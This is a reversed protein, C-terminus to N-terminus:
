PRVVVERADATVPTRTVAGGPWRTWVATPTGSLGFVQVAGNQSWYGSGAQVERVPGMHDEGYVIRVQAGVGDPNAPPGMLRVRLGSKAGRNRFLKTPGANQSVALDLRGDGDFDAYGAGRQDGYVVIGSRSSPVPRLRGTGDGLLLLGRGADYRPMGEPTPSFNQGLFVDEFGDGDFDAVGAYFAPAFQAEVPLPAADFRNGRNLFVLHDMTVVEFRRASGAATGLVQEVTSGAFKAFTPVRAALGPVATRLRPLGDLPVLGELRADQRALLMEPEGRTGPWGYVLLLPRTSDTPTATNRGWSTAVLDLRGDGDLDGTALGNWRSTWRDLGWSASASTFRGGENLLLLVSGWERALLLDEDGDGDVDAFLAASVLGVNRLVASNAEDPVFQGDENRYLASSAPEPYRGPIVRGGVFLDPDGDGDTDGLAMPGTSSEGPPALIEASVPSGRRPAPGSVAAPVAEGDPAEWRSLGALLRAGGDRALGLITTFDALAPTGQPPEPVLRGGTNRFVGLRGGRGTGVVLDEDGDRDLDFWTVGPGLLSLAGPLLLQRSWDDFPTDTHLHGGLEATADEFLRVTVPSSAEPQASATASTIEYLRNPRVGNLVTRKGGPWDIVLTVSDASGTAFSTLYDSHSLYLGGASVEREAVPVAGGLVRVRAGVARTNPADGVLRVALRPAAARNRLVLAPARLRNVVVDLDGDGDLDAAAMAHSLDEETGFGWQAGIDEFTLDGRNRFAVNRLPLPPFPVPQNMGRQAVRQELEQADGDMRDWLHGNAILLDQWGDLDVDLFLTSWSWGSAEVGALAAIEAFTGDGRNLSLTNRQLQTPTTLEGARKPVPTHTPVQTRLRRSDNSLMDLEFLDPLGDGNVDGIDTGMSSNSTARFVTWDALQFGGHGDNRWYLDPDEFDNAVHLDPAGDGDLDAFRADLAFSEPEAALPQGAADRFRDSTLPVRTFRGGDNRYFDDPEGKMSLFMRDMGPPTFLKFDRQYEPAVEFKGPATQRVIPGPAGQGPMKRDVISYPKYNAIYLDLDGDGDVDALTPTRSGKGETGAGIAEHQETFRGRGDNLFFANPSATALLLLDLDGDGDLDVLAAGTSYRNSAAVGAQETIDEFRWDGLNRYLANPGDTRALFVDVKGDGDVDGLAVGAGEGLMRNVLLLSDSVTNEFRIGTRRAAMADFGPPGGSVQLDHWRYGAEERWEPAPTQRCSAGLLLALVIVGRACSPQSASLPM